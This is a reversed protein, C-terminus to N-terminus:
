NLIINIRKLIDTMKEDILYKIKPINKLYFIILKVFFKM